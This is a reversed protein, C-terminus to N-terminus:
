DIERYIVAHGPLLDSVWRQFSEGQPKVASHFLHSGCDCDSAGFGSVPQELSLHEALLEAWAHERHQPDHSYWIEVLRSGARLYDIHWRPRPSIRRHHACRAAVGGPGFASGVYLYWGRPLTHTGLRGIRLTQKSPCHLVLVYTGPAKPQM